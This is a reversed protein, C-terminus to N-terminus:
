IQVPQGAEVSRYAALVIELAKLGDQGTVSPQRNERIASIFEQIMGLNADSGWNAFVPRQLDHRYVTARQKFADVTILAKEAVIEMGLGGWTPYYPPKSWSCDISAFVGNAFTLMVMGGTEVDSQTQEAYLIHNAEAFVEVVESQLYWRLVDALHVIHDMLAGGGALEKDVFWARLHKPCEGQNTGNIGYIRGAAGLAKKAELMPTSFRMPFATMLKVGAKECAAIMSLADERKTALPKECLINVGAEAALHVLPAHRANESCIIVGDPKTALLAEYSEFYPANFEQAFHKGRESDEDALGIFDVDPLNQLIQIYGEAHLHAFSLIGIRM